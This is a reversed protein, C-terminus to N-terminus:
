ANRRALLAQVSSGLAALDYPKPLFRVAPDGLTLPSVGSVNYGSSLLVPLDARLERVAALTREGSMDPMTLDLLVLGIDPEARVREVADRGTAAEIVTYGFRELGRRAARRLNPDDDVVLITRPVVAGPESRPPPTRSKTAAPFYSTVTTGAGPVSEVRM